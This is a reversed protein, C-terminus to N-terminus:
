VDAGLLPVFRVGGHNRFSWGNLTRKGVVLRQGNAPTETPFVFSGGPVLAHFYSSGADPIKPFAACSLIKEFRPESRLIEKGDGSILRHKKSFGPRWVELHLLANRHLESFFEASVIEAGLFDLVATQYGSGTGIEFVRDGPLISLLESMWAVMFPQSITQGCGIPLPKDEYAFPVQEEPLFCERPISTMADLIRPDRIGRAAIQSRVM